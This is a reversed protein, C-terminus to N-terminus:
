NQLPVIRKCLFQLPVKKMKRQVIFGIFELPKFNQLPLLPVKEFM